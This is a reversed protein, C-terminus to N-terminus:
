GKTLPVLVTGQPIDWLSLKGSCSVPEVNVRDGLVWCKPGFIHKRQKPFLKRALKVDIVAKVVVTCIIQGQPAGSHIAIRKGALQTHTGWSRNEIIKSGDLVQLAFEPKLTLAKIDERGLFSPPLM